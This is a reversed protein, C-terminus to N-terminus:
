MGGWQYISHIKDEWLEMPEVQSFEGQNLVTGDGLYILVHNAIGFGISVILLDGKVRSLESV